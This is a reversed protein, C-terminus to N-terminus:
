FVEIVIVVLVVIIAVQVGGSLFENSPFHSISFLVTSLSQNFIFTLELYYKSGCKVIKFNPDIMHHMVKLSANLEDPL